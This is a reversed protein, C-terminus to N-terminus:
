AILSFCCIRAGDKERQSLGQPCMSGTRKATKEIKNVEKNILSASTSGNRSNQKLNNQSGIGLFGWSTVEVIFKKVRKWRSMTIMRETLDTTLAQRIIVIYINNLASGLM